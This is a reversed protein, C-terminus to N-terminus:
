GAHSGPAKDGKNETKDHDKTTEEPKEAAEKIDEIDESIERTGKKFEKISRGLARALEPLKKAGFMLLALLLILIIETPGVSQFFAM